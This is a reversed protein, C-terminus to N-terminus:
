TKAEVKTTETGNMRAKQFNALNGGKGKRKPDHGFRYEYLACDSCVCQSVEYSSGCCCDLCKARIAKLTTM